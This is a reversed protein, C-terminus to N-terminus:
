AAQKPESERLPASIVEEKVSESATPIRQVPQEMKLKQLEALYPKTQQLILRLKAVEARSAALKHELDAVVQQPAAWGEDRGHVPSGPVASDLASQIVASEILVPDPEAASKRETELNSDRMGEIMEAALFFLRALALCALVFFLTLLVFLSPPLTGGASGWDQLQSLVPRIIGGSWAIRGM